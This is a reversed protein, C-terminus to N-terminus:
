RPQRSKALADPALERNFGAELPDRRGIPCCSWCRVLSPGVQPMASVLELFRAAAAVADDRIDAWRGGRAQSRQAADLVVLAGLTVPIPLGGDSYLERVPKDGISDLELRGVGALSLVQRVVCGTDGGVRCSDQGTMVNSESARSVVCSQNDAAAFLLDLADAIDLRATERYSWSPRIGSPATGTMPWPDRDDPEGAEPLDRPFVGPKLEDPCPALLSERVLCSDCVACTAASARVLMSM